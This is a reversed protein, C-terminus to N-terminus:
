EEPDFQSESDRMREAMIETKNAWRQATEFSVLLKKMRAVHEIIAPVSKGEAALRCIESRVDEPLREEKSLKPTTAMLELRQYRVTRLHPAFVPIGFSEIAQSKALSVAERNQFAHLGFSGLLEIMFKSDPLVWFEVEQGAINVSGDSEAIGQILGIRLQEPSDFVWDMKVTSYTTTEGDALGMVVNFIWDLLPSSQSTWVYFGFPKHPPKPLDRMRSMRLGFQNMCSTTFDGIRQNTEYRHSLVLSLHRHGHGQKPKHGDGIIMGLLFGFLYPRTFSGSVPAFPIIENLVDGIDTWSMISTPVQVFQGTPIAHGHSQELTLWVRGDNPEGLMLLAKLFHALKPMKELRRLTLKSYGGLKGTKGLPTAAAKLITTGKLEDVFKGYYAVASPLPECGKWFYKTFELSDGHELVYAVLKERWEEETSAEM